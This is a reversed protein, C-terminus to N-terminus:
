RHQPLVVGALRRLVAVPDGHVPNLVVHDAGADHHARVRAAVAAEDGRAVLDDVVRDGPAAPDLEDAAYGLARLSAVYNPLHLYGAVHERATQQAGAEDDDLVVALTPALLPDPGLAERARATHSPPVFFPHAGATRAAALGLMLKRLAGLVVPGRPLEDRHAADMGDLYGRMAPIPKEYAHGREHVSPAHSVGLGLVFRGPFAEHLAGSGMQAAMADRTYIGTIGTAVVLTSTAELLLTSQVFAERIMPAEACWLGGYGAEEIARAATRLDAVPANALFVGFAGVPGLRRKLDALEAPTTGPAGADVASM